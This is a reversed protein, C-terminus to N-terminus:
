GILIGFHRVDVAPPTLHRIITNKALDNRTFQRGIAQILVGFYRSEPIDMRESWDVDKDNRVLVDAPHALDLPPILLEDPPQEGESPLQRILFPDLFRAITQDDVVTWVASLDDWVEVDM